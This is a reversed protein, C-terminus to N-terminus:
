KTKKKKNEDKIAHVQLMEPQYPLTSQLSNIHQTNTTKNETKKRRNMTVYKDNYISIILACFVPITVIHTQLRNQKFTLLINKTM